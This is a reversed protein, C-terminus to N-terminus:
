VIELRPPGSLVEGVEAARLGDSRLDTLLAGACKEPVSLLLGGSTQPDHLLERRTPDLGLTDDLRKATVPVGDSQTSSATHWKSLSRGGSRISEPTLLPAFRASSIVWEPVTAAAMSAVRRPMGAM